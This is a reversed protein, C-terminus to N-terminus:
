IWAMQSECHLAFGFGACLRQALAPQEGVLESLWLQGPLAICQSVPVGALRVKARQADQDSAIRLRLRSGASASTIALVASMPVVDTSLPLTNLM